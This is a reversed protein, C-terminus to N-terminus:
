CYYNLHSYLSYSNDESLLGKNTDNKVICAYVRNYELYIFVELKNIVKGNSNDTVVLCDTGVKDASNCDKEETQLYNSSILESIKKNSAVGMKNAVNGVTRKSTLVERNDQGWNQAASIILTLKKEFMNKNMKNRISGISVTGILTVVAIIVITALLEVLTFGKKDM